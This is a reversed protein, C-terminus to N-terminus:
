KNLESCEEDTCNHKPCPTGDIIWVREGPDKDYQINPLNIYRCYETVHHRKFADDYTIRGWLSIPISKAKLNSMSVQDFEGILARQSAGPALADTRKPMPIPQFWMDKDPMPGPRNGISQGNQSSMNFTATRGTNQIVGSFDWRVAGTPDTGDSWLEIRPMSVIAREGAEYANRSLSNAESAVRLQGVVLSIGVIAIVASIIAAGASIIAAIAGLRTWKADIAQYANNTSPKLFSSIISHLIVAIGSPKSTNNTM